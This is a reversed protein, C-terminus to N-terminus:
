RTGMHLERRLRLRYLNYAGVREEVDREYWQDVRSFDVESEARVIVYTIPFKMVEERAFAAVYAEYNRVEEEIETESIARPHLTLTPVVREHGFVATRVYNSMFVDEAQAKLFRRVEDGSAGCYYLYTFVRPDKHTASGFDLPGLGVLVGQATWTPLLSMVELHPSFVISGTKGEMNLRSFTGDETSLERLHRLVPVIQDNAVNLSGRGTISLNVEVLGLLLSLAAVWLVVRSSAERNFNVVLVVAGLVAYNAIFYEFHFPQMSKGTIVQQNFLVFPLLALSATLVIYPRFKVNKRRMAVILIILVAAGILEPTRLLDPQRTSIMTQAEDLSKARNLLLYLYPPLFPVVVLCFIIMAELTKRRGAQNTFFWLSVFCVLWTIAATWLYLYSFLMSAFILGACLAFTRSNRKSDVTQSRWIMTCFVFFMFFSASPQYRRLFPLGMAEIDGHILLRFLGEGAAAAGFCLVFLAGVAATSNRIGVSVFFWFVAAGATFGATALLIIFATSATIRTIRAFSTIAFPPLVQISFTSESLPANPHDDRGGFPDNRRPRGDILANIYASYLFEDGDIVAYAGNWQSGQIAWLHIQPLLSLFVM